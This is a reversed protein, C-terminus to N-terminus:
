GEPEQPGVPGESGAEADPVSETAVTVDPPDLRESRWREVAQKVADVAASVGLEVTKGVVAVIVIEVIGSGLAGEEEVERVSWPLDAAEKLEGLMRDADDLGTPGKVSVSIKVAM